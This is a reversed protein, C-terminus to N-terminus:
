QAVQSPYHAVPLASLSGVMAHSAFASPVLHVSDQDNERTDADLFFGQFGRLDTFPALSNTLPCVCSGILIHSPRTFENVDIDSEALPIIDEIALVLLQPLKAVAAVIRALSFLPFWAM